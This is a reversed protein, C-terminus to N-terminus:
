RGVGGLIERTSTAWGSSCPRIRSVDTPVSTTFDGGGRAVVAGDGSADIVRAAQM